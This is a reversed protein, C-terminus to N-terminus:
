FNKDLYYNLVLIDTPNIGAIMRRAMGLSIPRIKTLKERAEKSLNDVEFYDINAPILKKEYESLKEVEVLQQRLYGEYKIDVELERQAEWTLKNIAPM